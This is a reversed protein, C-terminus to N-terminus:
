QIDITTLVPTASVHDLDNLKNRLSTIDEIRGKVIATILNYGSERDPIGLRGIILSAYSTLLKQINLTIDEDPHHIFINITGLNEMNIEKGKINQSSFHIKFKLYLDHEFFNINIYLFISKHDM